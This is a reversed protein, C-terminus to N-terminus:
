AHRELAHHDTRDLASRHEGDHDQRDPEQDQDVARRLPEPAARHALKLARERRPRDVDPARGERDLVEPDDADAEGRDRQQREEEAERLEPEAQARRGDVRLLAPEDADAYTPHEREAPAERGREARHGPHHDRRDDEEVRVHHLADQEVGERRRHEAAERARDASDDAPEREADDEVQEARVDRGEATLHPKDAPDRPDERHEENAGGAEESSRRYATDLRSASSAAPNTAAATTIARRGRKM